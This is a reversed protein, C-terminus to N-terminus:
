GETGAGTAEYGYGVQATFRTGLWAWSRLVSVACVYASPMTHWIYHLTYWDDYQETMHALHFTFDFVVCLNFLFELLQQGHMQSGTVM